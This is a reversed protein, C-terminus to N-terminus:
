SLQMESLTRRIADLSGLTPRWGTGLIKGVDLLMNRVDGRWGRGGDVGGTFTLKPRVGLRDCVARAISVVDAQDSSGLNYVGPQWGDRLALAMASTCERVYLYSKSQRGDGLLELVDPNRTLKGFLDFVIGHRSRPGVINALRFVTFAPGSPGSLGGILIESALKTSGYYSIPCLPSYVEPTPIAKAEGYVTSSSAFVFHKVRNKVAAEAVVQTAFVNDGFAAALDLGEPRVRPDAALHIIADAGATAAEVQDAMKCDGYVFKPAAGSAGGALNEKTGSSLNDFATVEHGLELLLQCLDSGIFGAGGTVL